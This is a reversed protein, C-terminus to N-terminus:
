AGGNTNVAEDYITQLCHWAQVESMSEGLKPLYKFM